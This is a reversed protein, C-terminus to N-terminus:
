LGAPTVYGAIYQRMGPAYTGAGAADLRYTSLRVLKPGGAGDGWDGNVVTVTTASVQAVIGVHSISQVRGLHGTAAATAVGPSLAFLAADGVRPGSAHYSGHAAGYSLFSGAWGNLGGLPVGASGWAWGAFEACWAGPLASSDLFDRGDVTNPGNMGRGLQALALGAIAAGTPTPAAAPDVPAAAPLPAPLQLGSGGGNSLVAGLAPSGQLLGVAIAAAAAFAALRATKRPSRPGM